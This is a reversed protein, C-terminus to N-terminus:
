GYPVCVFVSRSALILVLLFVCSFRFCFVPCLFALILVLVLLFVGFLFVCSPPFFFLVCVCVFLTDAVLWTFWNGGDSFGLDMPNEALIGSRQPAAQPHFWKPSTQAM